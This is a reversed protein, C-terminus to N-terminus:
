EDNPNDEYAFFTILDDMDTEVGQSNQTACWDYLNCKREWVTKRDELPLEDFRLDGDSYADIQAQTM